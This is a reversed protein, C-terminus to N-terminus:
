YFLYQLYKKDVQIDKKFKGNLHKQNDRYKRGKLAQFFIKRKSKRFEKKNFDEGFTEAYYDRYSYRPGKSRKVAVYYNNHVTVPNEFPYVFYAIGNITDQEIKQASSEFSSILFVFILSTVRFISHDNNM